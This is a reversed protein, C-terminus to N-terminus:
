PRDAQDRQYGALLDRVVPSRIEDRVQRLELGREDVAPLADWDIDTRRELPTDFGRWTGRVVHQARQFRRKTTVVGPWARELSRAMALRGDGAYLVETNGGPTKLTWRKAVLFVNFAVTCLGGALVQLCLDTDANYLGRHRYPMENWILACSYVHCNLIFPTSTTSPAFMEYNLGAIGINTYRDTFDEVCALATGAHCPVREGRYLRTFRGMNDDLTWHRVAGAATAHDRSFNRAPVASRAHTEFPMVLLEADPFAARYVDEEQPEVVVRFPVGDKQLCAITSWSKEINARGKSPIYIPYRPQM